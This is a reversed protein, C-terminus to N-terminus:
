SIVAVSFGNSRKLAGSVGNDSLEHEVGVSLSSCPVCEALITVGLDSGVVIPVSSRAIQVPVIDVPLADELTLM